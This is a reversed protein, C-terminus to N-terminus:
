SALTGYWHFNSCTVPSIFHLMSFSTKCYKEFLSTGRFILCGLVNWLTVSARPLPARKSRQVFQSRSPLLSRPCLDGPIKGRFCRLVLFTASVSVLDLCFPLWKVFDARSHHSCVITWM